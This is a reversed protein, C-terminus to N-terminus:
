YAVDKMLRFGATTGILLLHSSARSSAVYLLNRRMRDNSKGLRHDLGALIVM